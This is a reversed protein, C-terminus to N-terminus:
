NKTQSVSTHNTNYTHKNSYGFPGYTLAVM